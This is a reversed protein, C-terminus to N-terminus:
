AHQPERVPQSLVAQVYRDSGLDDATVGMLEALRTRARNMRSKITGIHTGCIRATEEYSLGHAGILVLAERHEPSLKALAAQLEGMAVHMNTGPEFRNLNSLGRLLAEQVLDDARTVDGTLSIAFARLHPLSRLMLAHAAPAHSMHSM